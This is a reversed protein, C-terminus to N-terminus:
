APEKARKRAESICHALVRAEKHSCLPYGSSLAMQELNSVVRRAEDRENTLVQLAEKYAGEIEEKIDQLITKVEESFGEFETM